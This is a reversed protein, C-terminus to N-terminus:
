QIEDVSSCEYQIIYTLEYVDEIKVNNLANLTIEVLRLWTCLNTDGHIIYLVCCMYMEAIRRHYYYYHHNYFTTRHHHHLHHNIFHYDTQSDGLRGGIKVLHPQAGYM